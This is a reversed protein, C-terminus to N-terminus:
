NGLNGDGEGDGEIRGDWGKGRAGDWIERGWWKEGIEGWDGEM